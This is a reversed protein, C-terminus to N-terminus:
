RGTLEEIIAKQAESYRTKMDIIDRNRRYYEKEYKELPKGSKLKKRIAVVQTFTSDGISQYLGVFTWWHTYPEARLEKGAVKNVASIILPFDQEWDMLKPQKVKSKPEEQGCSIFWMAKNMAEAVNEPQVEYLIGLVVVTKDHDDLDPDNLACIIDIAARWDSRIPYSEGDVDLATPLDYIM